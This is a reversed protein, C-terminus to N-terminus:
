GGKLQTVAVDARVGGKDKGARLAERVAAHEKTGTWKDDDMHVGFWMECHERMIAAIEKEIGRRCIDCHAGCGAYEDGIAGKHLTM